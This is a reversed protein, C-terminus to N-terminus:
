SKSRNQTNYGDESHCKPSPVRTCWGKNAAKQGESERLLLDQRLGLENRWSRPLAATTGEETLEEAELWGGWCSMNKIITPTKLQQIQIKQMQECQMADSTCENQKEHELSGSEGTIPSSKMAPPPDIAM